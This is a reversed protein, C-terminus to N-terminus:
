GTGDETIRGDEAAARVDNSRKILRNSKSIMRAAKVNMASPVSEKVDEISFSKSSSATSSASVEHIADKVPSGQAITRIRGEKM